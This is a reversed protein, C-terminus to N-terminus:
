LIPCCRRNLAKLPLGKGEMTVGAVLVPPSLPLGYAFGRLVMYIPSCEDTARGGLVRETRDRVLSHRDGWANWM